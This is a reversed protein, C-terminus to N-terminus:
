FNWVATRIRRSSAVPSQFWLEPPKEPRGKLKPKKALMQVPRSPKARLSRKNRLAEKSSPKRGRTISCTAVPM